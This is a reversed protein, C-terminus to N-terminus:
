YEKGSNVGRIIHIGINVLLIEFLTNNIEQYCIKFKENNM